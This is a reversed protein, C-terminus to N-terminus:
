GSTDPPPRAFCVGHGSDCREWVGTGVLVEHEVEEGVELELAAQRAVRELRVAAVQELEPAEEFGM